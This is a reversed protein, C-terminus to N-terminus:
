KSESCCSSFCVSRKRRLIAMIAQFLGCASLAMWFVDLIRVDACGLFREVYPFIPTNREGKKEEWKLKHRGGKESSLGVYRLWAQHFLKWPLATLEKESSKVKRQEEAGRSEERRARLPFETHLLSVNGFRDTALRVSLYAAHWWRHTTVDDEQASHGPTHRKYEITKSPLFTSSTNCLFTKKTTKKKYPGFGRAACVCLANESGTHTLTHTDLDRNPKARKVTHAYSCSTAM